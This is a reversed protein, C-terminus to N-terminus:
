RVHERWLTNVLDHHLREMAARDEDTFEPADAIVVVPTEATLTGIAGGAYAVYRGGEKTCGIGVVFPNQNPYMWLRCLTGVDITSLWVPAVDEVHHGPMQSLRQVLQQQAVATKSDEADM